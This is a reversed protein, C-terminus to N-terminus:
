FNLERTHSNRSGWVGMVMMSLWSINDMECRRRRAPTKIVVVFLSKEILEENDYENRIEYGGEGVGEGHEELNIVTSIGRHGNPASRTLRCSRRLPYFEVRRSNFLKKTFPITRTTWKPRLNRDNRIRTPRRFHFPGSVIVHCPPPRSIPLSVAQLKQVTSPDATPSSLFFHRPKYWATAKM